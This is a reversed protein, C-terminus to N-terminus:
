IGGTFEEPYNEQAVKLISEKISYGQRQYAEVASFEKGASSFMVRAFPDIFLRYFSQIKGTQLMFESFGNSKAERFQKILAVVYADFYGEHSLMFDDFAKANQLMIIKIDSCNWCARAEDSKQFDEISQTITIFSGLHRRATRYGKEIFRAATKNDGALLRWAEDIVVMKRQDRPSQYMQEEINLILAFLVAKMLDPKDELAGLELVVLSAEPALVSYNNFITPYPGTTSYRGLLIVLDELRGDQNDLNLEELAAIVDDIKAENRKKEWAAIIALRLYEEQVDTLSGAPSALVSFLDRIKESAENIDRINTFPNLNLSQYELYTGGIIDCFKRYSHGLDIVFCKGGVSLTHSLINQVLFSKGAGSTAALAVNYNATPLSDSYIDFHAIQNRFSSFLVGRSGLKFDAVVPLLNALNWTTLTKLRGGQKLDDYMGESMVFPLSGLFSQLQMYKTNFLDIGNYRYSSIASAEDRKEEGVRSFLMLNFFVKALRVTDTNLDDRIKKWELATETTGSFYKAYPSNAKRDMGLFRRQANSKAAQTPELRLHMSIVFPCRIAQSARFVNFFNDPSQWLAFESPLGRLSLNTIKTTVRSTGTIEEAATGAVATGSTEITLRDPDNVMEFSSDAIQENLTTHEDHHASCYKINDVNPNVWSRLLPLFNDLGLDLCSVGMAELEITINDRIIEMENAAQENYETKRSVFIFARYDRLTLPLNLKNKFGKKTAQKYYDVSAQALKTYIEGVALQHQYARDILEGVQHSGWLVFQVDLDDRLKNKILDALSNVIKEDAGSFITIELGFGLSHENIFLRKEEWFYRYPLISSFNPYDVQLMKNLLEHDAIRDPGNNVSSFVKKALDILEM